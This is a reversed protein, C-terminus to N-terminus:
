LGVGAMGAVSREHAAAYGRGVDSWELWDTLSWDGKMVNRNHAAIEAMDDRWAEERAAELEWPLPETFTHSAM